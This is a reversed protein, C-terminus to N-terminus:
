TQVLTGTLTRLDQGLKGRISMRGGDDCKLRLAVRLRRRDKGTATCRPTGGAFTVSGAFTRAGTAALQAAVAMTAAGTLEATGAWSGAFDSAAGSAPGAAAGLLVLGVIGPWWWRSM